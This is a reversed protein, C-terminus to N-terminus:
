LLVPTSMCSNREPLWGGVLALRSAVSEVAVNSLTADKLDAFM